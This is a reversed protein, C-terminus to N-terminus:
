IPSDSIANSLALGALYLTLFVEGSGRHGLSTDVLEETNLTVFSGQGASM